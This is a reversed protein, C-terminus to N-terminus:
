ATTNVRTGVLQGNLNVTPRNREAETQANVTSESEAVESSPQVRTAQAAQQTVPTQQTQQAQQDQETPESQQVRSQAQVNRASSLPSQTYLSSAVSGIEMAFEKHKTRSVYGRYTSTHLEKLKGADVLAQVNTTTIVENM